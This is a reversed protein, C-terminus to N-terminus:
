HVTGTCLPFIPLWCQGRGIQFIFSLYLNIEKRSVILIWWGARGHYLITSHKIDYVWLMQLKLHCCCVKSTSPIQHFLQWNVWGTFIQFQDFKNKLIYDTNSPSVNTVGRLLWEMLYRRYSYYPMAPMFWLTWLNISQKHIWYILM